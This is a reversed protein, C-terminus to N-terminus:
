TQYEAKAQRYKELIRCYQQRAEPCEVMSIVRALAEDITADVKQRRFVKLIEEGDSESMELHFGRLGDKHRFWRLVIKELVGTAWCVKLEKRAQYGRVHAQIKVVKQRFALFDKRAKWGRYKKQITLAASTYNRPTRFKLQASSASLGRINNSLNVLEDGGGGAAAAAAERQQRKRFSRARFAAQIRVAALTANRAAALTDKLDIQDDNITGDTEYQFGFAREAELVVKADEKSLKSEELTLSSLHTTLSVESLYGALGKHGYSAAVSAPSQGIPDIKTPDTVAGASAGSAILAAVVKERGFRAAWHLATSGNIGRFDVAVGADLLPRLAWEFGLGAVMHIVGQESRSLVCDSDLLKTKGQLKSYLWHHLSDKLLEELLWDITLNSTLNGVLIGEIVETWLDESAKAKESSDNRSEPIGVNCRTSKSCLLMKAFRVLLLLEETSKSTSQTEPVSSETASGTHKVRYEFDKVESHSERDGMTICIAVKGPLHPPALCCFVGDQIIQVPVETNGFMCMCECVSPDCSFSGTIIVKTTEDTYGWEPSVATIRFKQTQSANLCTNDGFYAGHQNQDFSTGFSEPKTVHINIAPSYTPYRFDEVQQPIGISCNQDEEGRFAQWTISEPMELPDRLLPTIMDDKCICEGDVSSGYAAIMDKRRNVEHRSQRTCLNDSLDGSHRHLLGINSDNTMEDLLSYDDQINGIGASYEIHNYLPENNNMSDDKMSLQVDSRRLTHSIELVSSSSDEEVTDSSQNIGYSNTDVFFCNEMSVSTSSPEYSKCMATIPSALQISHPNPSQNFTFSAPSHQPVSQANQKGQNTDRYHVLVIHEYVPDLMWFCRRQFKPNHEGRAYYCNLAEVNGVKLREHGEGGSRGDKKRQWKHGDNRFYRLVRKNFLLLSGSPPKEPTVRTIQLNEHNQLISLVEAPKLWRNKAERVLDDYNFGSGAM